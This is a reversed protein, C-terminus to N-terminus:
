EQDPINITKMIKHWDEAYQEKSDLFAKLEKLLM